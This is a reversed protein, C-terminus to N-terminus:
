KLLVTCAKSMYNQRGGEGVLEAAFVSFNRGHNLGSFHYIISM